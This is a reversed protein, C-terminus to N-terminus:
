LLAKAVFTRIEQAQQLEPVEHAFGLARALQAPQTAVVHEREQPHAFPSFHMPLDLVDDFFSQHETM